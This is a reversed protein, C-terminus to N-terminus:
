GGDHQVMTGYRVQQDGGTPAFGTGYPRKSQQSPVIVAKVPCVGVM